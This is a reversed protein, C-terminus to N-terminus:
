KTVVDINFEISSKDVPVDVELGSTGGQQYKAPIRTKTLDGPMLSVTYHGPVLGDDPAWSMVRYKGEADWAGGAPRKPYGEAAETVAFHLRGGEGPPQGNITVRGSIPITKPRDGGGCGVFSVIAFSLIVFSSYRIVSSLGPGQWEDNTIRENAM